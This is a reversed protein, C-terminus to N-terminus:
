KLRTRFIAMSTSFRSISIRQTNTSPLFQFLHQRYIVLEKGSDKCPVEASKKLYLRISFYLLRMEYSTDGSVESIEM